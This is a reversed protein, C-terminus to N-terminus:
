LNASADAAHVAAMLAQIKEVSKRGPSSEVGSSTDLAYPRVSVIADAANEADIGGALIVKDRLEAPIRQWDFAEGTGGPVGPRYADLLIGRASPYDDMAAILDLGDRMRLAKIYPRQFQECFAASEDGHFQLVDLPVQALVAEVEAVSPNVFLGVLDVFVPVAAAIDAAQQVSVCRPSPAYFVVGLADAGAAIAAQADQVQSLGCIKVRTRSQSRLM